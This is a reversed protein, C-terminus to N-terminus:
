APGCSVRRAEHDLQARYIIANPYTRALERIAAEDADKLSTGLIVGRLDERFFPSDYYLKTDDLEASIARYEREYSWDGTKVYYYERFYEDWNIEEEGLFARAWGDVLPLVPRESQYLVPKALLFSSDRDDSSEFQLVVGKHNDAYHAWMTPSDAIASFCAIRLHKVKQLWATHLQAFAIEMPAAMVHLSERLDKLMRSHRLPDEKAFAELIILAAPSGPRATGALYAEFRRAVAARLDTPTFPLELQRPVDFPDNFLLPSSWRLCSTRLVIQATAASTYKHLLPLDHRRNPSRM